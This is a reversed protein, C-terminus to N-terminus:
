FWLRPEWLLRPHMMLAKLTEKEAVEASDLALKEKIERKKQEKSTMYFYSQRQKNKHTRRAGMQGHKKYGSIYTKVKAKKM